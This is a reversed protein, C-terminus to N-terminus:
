AAQRFLGPVFGMQFMAFGFTCGTETALLGVVEDRRRELIDAAALFIRQRVAPPTAAWAPFAASAAEIARRADDRTAAAVTGIVQGTYPNVDEFTRGDASPVWAGDIYQDHHTQKTSAATTM